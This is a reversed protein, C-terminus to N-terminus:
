HIFIGIILFFIIGVMFAFLTSRHKNYYLSKPLLESFSLYIMVGAIFAFLIGLIFNNIYNKFLFYFVIGGLPEALGAVLTFLFSKKFSGTGYYIPIMVSIGEPINHLAISVGMLLGLRVDSTALIFTIIGEPINHIIIAIMAFIGVRYLNDVDRALLKDLIVFVFIGIFFSLLIIFIINILSYDNLLFSFSEPLLDFISISIMIGAAFALSLLIVKEKNNINFFPVLGGILTSIGAIFTIIFSIMFNNM